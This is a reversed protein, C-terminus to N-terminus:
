SFILLNKYKEKEYNQIDKEIQFYEKIEEMNGTSYCGRVAVLQM